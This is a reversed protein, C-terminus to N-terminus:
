SGKTSPEEGTANSGNPAGPTSQEGPSVGGTTHNYDEGAFEVYGADYVSIAAAPGFRDRGPSIAKPAEDAEDDAAPAEVMYRKTVTDEGAVAEPAVRGLEVYNQGEDYGTVDGRDEYLDYSDEVGQDFFDRIVVPKNTEEVTIEVTIVEGATYVTDNNPQRSGSDSRSGTVTLEVDDGGDSTTDVRDYLAFGDRNLNGTLPCDTIGRLNSAPDVVRDDNLRLDTELRGALENLYGHSEETARGSGMLVVAGGNEAFERIATVEDDTFPQQPLTVILARADVLDGNLNEVLDNLGRLRLGVGELFRQFYAVDDGAQATGGGFEDSPAGFQGHNGDVVIDGGDVEDDALSNILNLLFVFNDFSAANVRIPNEDDVFSLKRYPDERAEYAEECIPGGVLAVRTDDDIGVLPVDEDYRVSPDGEQTASPEALVPADRASLGGNDTCVSAAQPVLLEEVPRNRLEPASDTDMRRWIGRGNEQATIEAALFEDHLSHGSDYVRAYGNEVLERNVLSDFTGDGDEDYYIYALLRGLGDFTGSVPDIVAKIKGEPRVGANINKYPPLKESLYGTAKSSWDELYDYNPKGCETQYIGSPRRLAYPYRRTDSDSYTTFNGTEPQTESGANSEPDVVRDDNLRFGTGLRRLLNNTREIPDGTSAHVFVAGGERVFRRLEAVERGEYRETAPTLWVADAGELDARLDATATMEYTTFETENQLASFDGDLTYPQGHGEDFLVTAGGGLHDDWVNHLLHRNDPPLRPESGTALSDDVLLAGVGVIGDDVAVLAPPTDGYDVYGESADAARNGASPETRLALIDARDTLRRRDRGLLSRADDFRAATVEPRKDYALGEWEVPREFCGNDASETSDYGLLRVEFNRGSALFMRITDGDDVYDVEGVYGYQVDDPERGQRDEFLSPFRDANFNGTLPIREARGLKSAEDVVEDANFRFGVGLDAAIDNLNKSPNRRSEYLDRPTQEDASEIVPRVDQYYPGDDSGSVKNYRSIPPMNALDASNVLLVNGGNRVYRRLATREEETFREPAVLMVVDPAERLLATVFRPTGPTRFEDRQDSVFEYGYEGAYETFRRYDELRWPQRYGNATYINDNQRYQRNRYEHYLVTHETGGARGTMEDLLNLLFEENGSEWNTGDIALLAGVGAVTGSNRDDVAVLPVSTDEPYNVNPERVFTDDDETRSNAPTEVPPIRNTATAEAWVAVLDEDTLPEEDANLLSLPNFMELADINGQVTQPTSTSAAAVTDVFGTRSGLAAASGALISRRRLPLDESDMPTSEALTGYIIELLVRWFYIRLM